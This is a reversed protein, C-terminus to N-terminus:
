EHSKGERVIASITDPNSIIQYLSSAIQMGCLINVAHNSNIYALIVDELQFFLEHPCIKQVEHLIEDLKRDSEQYAANEQMIADLEKSGM